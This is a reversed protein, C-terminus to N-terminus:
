RDFHFHAPMNRVHYLGAFVGCDQCIYPPNASACSHFDYILAPNRYLNSDTVKSPFVSPFVVKMETGSLIKRFPTSISTFAFRPKKTRSKIFSHRNIKNLESKNVSRSAINYM